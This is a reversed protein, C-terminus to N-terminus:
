CRIGLGQDVIDKANNPIMGKGQKFEARPIGNVEDIWSELNGFYDRYEHRAWYLLRDRSHNHNNKKLWDEYMSFFYPGISRYFPLVGYRASFQKKLESIPPDAELALALASVM